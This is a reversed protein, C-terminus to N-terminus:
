ATRGEPTIAALAVNLHALARDTKCHLEDRIRQPAGIGIAALSLKQWAEVTELHRKVRAQKVKDSM